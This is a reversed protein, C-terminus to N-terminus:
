LNDGCEGWGEIRSTTVKGKLLVPISSRYGRFCCFVIAGSLYKWVIELWNFSRMVKVHSLKLSEEPIRTLASRTGACKPFRECCPLCHLNPVRVSGGQGRRPSSLRGAACGTAIYCLLALM